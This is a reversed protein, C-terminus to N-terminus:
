DGEVGLLEAELEILPSTGERPHRAIMECQDQAPRTCRSRARHGITAPLLWAPPVADHEVDVIQTRLDLVELLGAYAKPVVDLDARAARLDQDFIGIAVRDLQVLRGPMSILSYVILPKSCAASRSNTLRGLSFIRVRG